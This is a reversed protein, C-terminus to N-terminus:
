VDCLVKQERISKKQKLAAKMTALADKEKRIKKMFRNTLQANQDRHQKKMSAKKAKLRLSADCYKIFLWWQIIVYLESQETKKRKSRIKREERELTVPNADIADNAGAQMDTSIFPKFQNPADSAGSIDRHIRPHYDDLGGADGADEQRTRRLFAYLAQMLHNQFDCAFDDFKQVASSVAANLSTKFVDHQFDLLESIRKATADIKRKKSAVTKARKCGLTEFDTNLNHETTEM